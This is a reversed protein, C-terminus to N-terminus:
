FEFHLLVAVAVSICFAFHLICFFLLLLPLPKRIEGGNKANQIKFKANTEGGNKQMKCKSNQMLEVLVEVARAVAGQRSLFADRARRAMAEAAPRQLLLKEIEAALSERAAEVSGQCASLIEMADNFNHMHPGHVTPVGLGCPEMVNQGGHPILSGGIFAVSAVSYLMKLEGM